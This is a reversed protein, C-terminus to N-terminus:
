SGPKLHVPRTLERLSRTLPNEREHRKRIPRQDRPWTIAGVVWLTLVLAFGGADIM